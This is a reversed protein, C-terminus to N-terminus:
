PCCGHGVRMPKNCTAQQVPRHPCAATQTMGSAVTRAHQTTEALQMNCSVSHARGIVVKREVISALRFALLTSAGPSGRVASIMLLPLPM